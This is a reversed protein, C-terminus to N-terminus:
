GCCVCPNSHHTDWLARRRRNLRAAGAAHAAVSDQGWLWDQHTPQFFEYRVPDVKEDQENLAEDWDPSWIEEPEPMPAAVRWHAGLMAPDSDTVDYRFRPVQDTPRLGTLLAGTKPLGLQEGLEAVRPILWPDDMQHFLIPEDALIEATM